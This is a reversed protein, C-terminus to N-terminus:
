ALAARMADVDETTVDTFSTVTVDTKPSSDYMCKGKRGSGSTYAYESELIAYHGDMYYNYASTALGGNCGLNGYQVGACDVLQQESFSLLENSKTFHAGELSGTTSFAWCSGCQGQDKIPTVAGAAM